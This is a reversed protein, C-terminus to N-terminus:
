LDVEITLVHSIFEILDDKPIAVEEGGNNIVIYDEMGKEKAQYFWTGMTSYYEKIMEKVGKCSKSVKQRRDM